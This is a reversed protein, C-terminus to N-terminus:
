SGLPIMRSYSDHITTAIVLILKQINFFLEPTAVLHSEIARMAINM